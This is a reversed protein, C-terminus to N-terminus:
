KMKLNVIKIQKTKLMGTKVFSQEIQTVATDSCISDAELPMDLPTATISKIM